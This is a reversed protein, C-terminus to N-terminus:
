IFYILFIVDESVQNNIKASKKTVNEIPNQNLHYKIKWKELM